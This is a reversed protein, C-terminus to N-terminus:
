APRERAASASLRRGGRCLWVLLVLSALSVLGGARLGPPLYRFAITSTGRPVEVARFAYNAAVAEAPRGNVRVTWGPQDAESAYVLGPRPANVRLTVSNRRLSVIEVEPDNPENGAAPVSPPTELLLERAREGQGVRELSQEGDVVRYESTFFYRPLSKRRFLLTEGDDFFREYGRAEAERIVDLRDARIALLGVSTRDLLIEPPILTAERLFLGSHPALYRRYLGHARSPNFAYLSDLSFVQFASNVNATFSAFNLVRRSSAEQMLRQVYPVPHRWVNWAFQRPYHTYAMAQVGLLAVLAFGLAARGRGSTRGLAVVSVTIVVAVGLLVVLKWQELWAQGNPRSSVKYAVGLQWLTCVALAVVGLVLGARARSVRGALFNELGMAGLVAISFGVAVGFYIAFHIARLGPLLGIWQVPAAGLMKLLVLLGGAAFVGFLTRGRGARRDALLALLIPVIGIYHFHLFFPDPMPRPSYVVEGGMLVPGLLQYLTALPLSILGERGYYERVYSAQRIVMLAPLYYFFVLGVALGCAALFRSFTQARGPGGAPAERRAVMAAAYLAAFGFIALLLPPFSALAVTAYGTALLGAHRWTARDLFWRTLFLVFPLCEATQGLFSSVNVILDGSFMFAAAGFLAAPPSLEHRRLFLYTFFGSSLSLLLFYANKLLATNGMLVMAVYPPFFYAPTLNAMSPAGAGCYPDWFPLEGDGIAKRLFEGSPEWQWWTAGPDHVNPETALGRGTWASEPVFNEGHNAALFRADMPNRNDTEVLSKGGFVINSFAAALLGALVAAAIWPERRSGKSPVPLPSAPPQGSAPITTPRRKKRRSM